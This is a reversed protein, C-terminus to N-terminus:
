EEKSAAHFFLGLFLAVGATWPKAHMYAVLTMSFMVWSLVLCVLPRYNM